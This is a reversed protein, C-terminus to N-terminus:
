LVRTLLRLSQDMHKDLPALLETLRSSPLRVSEDLCDLLGLVSQLGLQAHSLHAITEVVADEIDQCLRALHDAQVNVWAQDNPPLQAQLADFAQHLRSMALLSSQSDSSFASFLLWRQRFLPSHLVAIHSASRSISSM